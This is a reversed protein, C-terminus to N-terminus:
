VSADFSACLANVQAQLQGAKEADMLVTLVYHYYGDDLVVGRCVTDGGEGACSWACDYRILGGQKQQLLQLKDATYGTVAKLTRNLDGGAMTQISISYDDCIYLTGDAHTSVPMAASEPLTLLINRAVATQQYVDSMTEFDMHEKCGTLLLMIMLLLCCKKM